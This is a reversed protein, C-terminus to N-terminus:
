NLDDDWSRDSNDSSYYESPPTTLRLKNINEIRLNGHLDEPCNTINGDPGTVPDATMEQPIDVPPTDTIPHIMIITTPVPAGTTHSITTPLGISHDPNVGTLPMTAAVGTVTIAPDPALAVTDLDETNMNHAVPTATTGPPHDQNRGSPGPRHCAPMGSPPIKNPCDM